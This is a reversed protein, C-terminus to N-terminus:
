RFLLVGVLIVALSLVIAVNAPNEMAPGQRKLYVGWILGALPVLPLLVSLAWELTGPQGGADAAAGGAHAAHPNSSVATQAGQQVAPTSAAAQAQAPTAQPEAAAAQTETAQEAAAPAAGAAPATHETWGSGDWYRLAGGDGNPDPYWGAPVSPQQPSGEM